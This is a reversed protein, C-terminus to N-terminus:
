ANFQIILPNLNEWEISIPITICAISVAMFCHFRLPTGPNTIYFINSGSLILNLVSKYGYFPSQSLM